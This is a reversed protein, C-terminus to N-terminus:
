FRIINAPATQPAAFWVAAALGGPAVKSASAHITRKIAIRMALAPRVQHTPIARVGEMSRVTAVIDTGRRVIKSAPTAPSPAGGM